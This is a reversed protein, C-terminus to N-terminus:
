CRRLDRYISAKLKAWPYRLSKLILEVADPFGCFEAAFLVISAM